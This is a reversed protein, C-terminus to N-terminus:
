SSNIRDRWYRSAATLCVNSYHVQRDEILNRSCFWKKIACFGPRIWFSKKMVNMYIRSMGVKSGFIYNQGIM